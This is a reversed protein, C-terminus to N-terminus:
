QFIIKNVIETYMKSNFFNSVESPIKKGWIQRIIMSERLNKIKGQQSVLIKKLRLNAEGTRGKTEPRL